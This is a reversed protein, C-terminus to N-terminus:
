FLNIGPNSKRYRFRIQASGRGMKIHQYEIIQYIKGDLEIAIGKRLEGADIM